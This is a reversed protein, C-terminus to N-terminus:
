KRLFKKSLENEKGLKMGGFYFSKKTSNINKLFL